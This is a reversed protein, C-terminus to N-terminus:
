VRPHTTSMETPINGRSGRNMSSVRVKLKHRSIIIVTGGKILDDQMRIAEAILGGHKALLVEQGSVGIMVSRVGIM